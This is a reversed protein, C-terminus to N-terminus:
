VERTEVVTSRQAGVLRTRRRLSAVVLLSVVAGVFGAIMLIAGIMRIDYGDGKFTVAYRMIAGVVVLFTSTGLTMSNTSNMDLMM